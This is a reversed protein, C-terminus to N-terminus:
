LLFGACAWAQRHGDLSRDQGPNAALVMQVVADRLPIRGVSDYATGFVEGRSASDAQARAVVPLVLVLALAVVHKRFRM